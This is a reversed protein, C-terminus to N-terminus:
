RSLGLRTDIRSPTVGHSQASLGPCDRQDHRGKRQRNRQRQHPERDFRLRGGQEESEGHEGCGAGAVDEPLSRRTSILRKARTGVESYRRGPASCSAPAPPGRQEAGLPADQHPELVQKAGTRGACTPRLKGRRLSSSGTPPLRGVEATRCAESRGARTCSPVTSRVSFETWGIWGTRVVTTWFTEARPMGLFPILLSCAARLAGRWTARNVKWERGRNGRFSGPIVLARRRIMASSREGCFGNFTQGPTASTGRSPNAVPYALAIQQALAIKECEAQMTPLKLAKLHHKLLVTSKTENKNM